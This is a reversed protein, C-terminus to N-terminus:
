FTIKEGKGVRRLIDRIDRETLSAVNKRPDIAATQATGNEEPRDERVLFGKAAGEMVRDAAYQMAGALIEAHHLAEYAGKVGLGAAVLRAFRPDACESELDFSPYTEKAAEADRLLASYIGAVGLATEARSTREREENELAARERQAELEKTERFRRNIMNQTRRAYADKYPGKILKEFEEDSGIANERGADAPQSNVAENEAAAGTIENEAM